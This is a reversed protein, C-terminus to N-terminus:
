KHFTLHFINIKEGFSYDYNLYLYLSLSAKIGVGCQSCRNDSFVKIYVMDTLLNSKTEKTLSQIYSLERLSM